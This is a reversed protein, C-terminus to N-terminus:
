LAQLEGTRRSWSETLGTEVEGTSPTYIHLAVNLKEKSVSCRFEPRCTQTVPMKGVSSEGLGPGSNKKLEMGEERLSSGQEVMSNELQTGLM